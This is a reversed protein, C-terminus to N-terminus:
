SPILRRSGIAILVNSLWLLSLTVWRSTFTDLAVNFLETAFQHIVGVLHGMTFINCVTSVHLSARRRQVYNGKGNNDRLYVLTDFDNMKTHQRQQVQIDAREKIQYVIAGVVRIVGSVRILYICKNIRKM